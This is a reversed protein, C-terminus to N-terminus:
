YIAPVLASTKRRYAAYEAGYAKELEREEHPILPLILALYIGFVLLFIVSQTFLGLGLAICLAATYMPHRILRYPGDVVMKDKARPASGGLQYNRGLAILAWAMLGFGFIYLLLGISEMVMLFWHLNIVFHTPDMGPLGGTLLGVAAVPNVILLFFLNFINVAQLLLGGGPKELISGTAAQKVIVLVALLLLIGIGPVVPDFLHM